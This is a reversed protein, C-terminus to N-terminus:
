ILEGHCAVFIFPFFVNYPKLSSLDDYSKVIKKLVRSDILVINAALLAKIIQKKNWWWLLEHQLEESHCTSSHQLTKFCLYEVQTFLTQVFCEFVSFLSDQVVQLNRLPCKNIIILKLM